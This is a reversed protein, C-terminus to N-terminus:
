GGEGRHTRGDNSAGRPHHYRLSEQDFSELNQKIKQLNLAMTGDEAIGAVIKSPKKFYTHM